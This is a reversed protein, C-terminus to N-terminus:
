GIIERFFRTYATAVADRTYGAAHAAIGAEALRRRLDGDAILTGIATGLADADDVPVLLGTEGDAILEEPGDASTAAVPVGYAWAELVVNGLPETRSSCVYIDAARYLSAVDLRWDLFRIRAAVSEDAALKRLAADEPGAGALWLYADPVAKLARILVDFGKNRHLRGMALLLPVGEPTDFESRPLPAGEQAEVFNPIIRTRQRLWGAHALYDAVGQTNAILWDCNNYYKLPYHGGLRAVHVFPHRSRFTPGPVFSTARSMWSLVIDPQFAAVERRMDSRTALDLLGGFRLEAVPVGAAVLRAAREADRRIVARETVGIEHLAAVLREFFAEAGGHRAGAMVQMVRM